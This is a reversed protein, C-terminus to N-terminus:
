QNQNFFEDRNFTNLFNDVELDSHWDSLLLVGQKNSSTKHIPIREFPKSQNLIEAADKISDIIHEGRAMNRVLKYYERRQDQFKIKEKEFELRKEELEVFIERDLVGEDIADDWGQIYPFAFKRYASESWNNGTEENLM